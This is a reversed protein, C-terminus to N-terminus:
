LDSRYWNIVAKEVNFPAYCELKSLLLM